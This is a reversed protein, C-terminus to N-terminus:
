WFGNYAWWRVHWLEEDLAIDASQKLSQLAIDEFMRRIVAMDTRITRYLM